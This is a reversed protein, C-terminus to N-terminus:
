NAQKTFEIEYESFANLFFRSTQGALKDTGRLVAMGQVAPYWKRIYIKEKATLKSDHGRTIHEQYPTGELIKKPATWNAPSSPDVAYSVYIGEQRYNHGQGHNLLMVYCRLYTNWHISPGWFSDPDKEVYDVKAPLLPTMKGGLGPELFGAQYWKFVKGLPQDRDKWDMRAFNVGQEQFPASYNSYFVYLYRRAQDLLVCFDGHGGAVTGNKAQCQLGSEAPQLIIGMDHWNLGNDTSKIAGIMASTLGGTPCVHKPEHHYWGYLMGDDTKVVAEIWRGGNMTNDFSVAEPKGLHLVDKGKLRYPHAHSNFVYFDEGDWFSPSNCDTTEVFEIKPSPRITVAPEVFTPPPAVTRPQGGQDAAAMVHGTRGGAVVVLFSFAAVAVSRRSLSFYQPAM